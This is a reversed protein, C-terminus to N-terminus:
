GAVASDFEGNAMQIGMQLNRGILRSREVFIAAAAPPCVEAATEHFLHLWRAFHTPRIGGVQIHAQMPSGRFRGSRLIVSSWFDCMKALHVPWNEEAIVQNFIPGLAPDRRVKGYFAHVLDHIMEETIASGPAARRDAPAPLPETM